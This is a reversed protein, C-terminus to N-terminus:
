GEEEVGILLLIRAVVQDITAEDGRGVSEGTAVENHRNSPTLKTPLNGPALKSRWIPRVVLAGGRLSLEVESGDGIRTEAAFASPIRMVLSNGWRHIATKM